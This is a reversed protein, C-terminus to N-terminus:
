IIRAQEGQDRLNPTGNMKSEFAKVENFLQSADEIISILGMNSNSKNCPRAKTLRCQNSSQNKEFNAYLCNKLTTRNREIM